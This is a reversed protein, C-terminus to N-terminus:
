HCTKPYYWKNKTLQYVKALEKSYQEIGIFLIQEKTFLHKYNKVAFKYAFRDITIILDYSKNKLNYRTYIM